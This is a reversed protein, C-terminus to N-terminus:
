HPTVVRGPKSELVATGSREALLKSMFRNGESIREVEIATADVALEIRQLREQLADMAIPLRREHRRELVRHYFWLSAVIVITGSVIMLASLFVAESM